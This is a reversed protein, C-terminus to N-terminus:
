QRQDRDLATKKTGAMYVRLKCNSWRKKTTLIYPVLLTLGAVTVCYVTLSKCCPSCASSVLLFMVKVLSQCGAYIDLM